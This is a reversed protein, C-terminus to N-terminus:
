VVPAPAPEDIVMADMRGSPAAARELVIVTYLKGAEIRTNPLKALVTKDRRIELTGTVPAVDEYGTAASVNVGSLLPTLKGGVLVDVRGADPAANVVRLKAKGDEPPVMEDNVVTLSAAEPGNAPMLVITYHKGAGLGQVAEALPESRDQGAPRLRFTVLNGPVERYGTVAKYEVQSFTVHDGVFVDAAPESPMAHVVRVLAPHAPVEASPVAEPVAGATRDAGPQDAVRGCAAGLPAVAVCLLILRSLSTRTSMLMLAEM